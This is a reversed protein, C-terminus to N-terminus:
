IDWQCDTGAADTTCHFYWTQTREMANGAMDKVAKDNGANRGYIKLAYSRKIIQGFISKVFVGNAVFRVNDLNIQELSGRIKTLSFGSKDDSPLLPNRPEVPSLDFVEISNNEVISRFDMPETFRIEITRTRLAFNTAIPPTVDEREGIGDAVWHELEAEGEEAPSEDLAIEPNEQNRNEVLDPEGPGVDHATDEPDLIGVPNSNLDAKNGGCGVSAACLALLALSMLTSTKM